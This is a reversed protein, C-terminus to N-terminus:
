PHFASRVFRFIHLANVCKQVSHTSYHQLVRMLKDNVHAYDVLDFCVVLSDVLKCALNSVTMEWKGRLMIPTDFEVSLTGEFKEGFNSMMVLFSSQQQKAM